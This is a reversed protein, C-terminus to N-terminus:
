DNSDPRDINNESVGTSTPFYYDLQAATTNAGETDGAITQAEILLNLLGQRPRSQTERSAWITFSELAKKDGKVGATFLGQALAHEVPLKMPGPLVINPALVGNEFPAKMIERTWYISNLNNLAFLPLAIGFVSLVLARLPTAIFGYLSASRVPHTMCYFGAILLWCHMMSQKSPMEAFFHVMLPAMFALYAAVLAKARGRCQLIGALALISLGALGLVGGEVYWQLPSSHIHTVNSLAPYPSEGAAYANAANTVYATEFNGYGVGLFPTKGALVLAQQGLQRSPWEANTEAYVGEHMTTNTFFVSLLVGVALSATWLGMRRHQKSMLLATGGLLGVGVIGIWGSRSGSLIVTAVMFAAAAAALLDVKLSSRAPSNGAMLWSWAAISACLYPALVSSHQIGGATIATNPLLVGDVVPSWGCLQLMELCAALLGSVFIIRLLYRKDLDVEAQILSVYICFWFLVGLVSYWSSTHGLGAPILVLILAGTILEIRAPLQLDKINAGTKALSLLAFLSLSILALNNNPNQLGTGGFGPLMLHMTILAPLCFLASLLQRRLTSGKSVPNGRL